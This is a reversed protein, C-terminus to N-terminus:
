VSTRATNPAYIMIWTHKWCDRARVKIRKFQIGTAGTVGRTDMSFVYLDMGHGRLPM